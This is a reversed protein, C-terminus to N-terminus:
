VNAVTITWEVSFTEQDTVPFGAFVARNFMGGATAADFLGSETLTAVVSGTMFTYRVIASNGSISLTGAVRHTEAELTTDTTAAVTTGTGLGIHNFPTANVQANISKVLVQLGVDVILNRVVMERCVGDRTTASLKLTGTCKIRDKM